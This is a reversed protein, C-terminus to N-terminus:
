KAAIAEDTAQNHIGDAFYHLPHFPLSASPNLGLTLRVLRNMWFGAMLPNTSWTVFRMYRLHPEEPSTRVLAEYM